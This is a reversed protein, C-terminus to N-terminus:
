GEGATATHTADWEAVAGTCRICLETAPNVEELIRWCRACKAGSARFPRVGVGAVEDLRFADGAPEGAKLVATSTRLV